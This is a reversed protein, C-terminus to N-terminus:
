VPEAGVPETGEPPIDPPGSPWDELVLVLTELEAAAVVEDVEALAADDDCEDDVEVLAEDDVVLTGVEDAEEDGDENCEEDAKLTCAEDEAVAVVEEVVAFAAMEDEVAVEDEVVLACVLVCVEEEAWVELEVLFDVKEVAGFFDEEVEEVTLM